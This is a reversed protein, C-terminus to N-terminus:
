MLGWIAKFTLATGTIGSNALQHKSTQQLTLKTGEAYLSAKFVYSSSGDDHASVMRVDRQRNGSDDYYRTGILMTAGDSTRGMFTDYLPLTSITVSGGKSLTGTWLLDHNTLGGTWIGVAGNVITRKFIKGSNSIYTQHTVNGGTTTKNILFGDSAMPRNTANSMYYVGNSKFTNCNYKSRASAGYGEYAQKYWSGWASNGNHYWRYYTPTETNFPYAVQMRGDTPGKGGFFYTVIYCYTGNPTNKNTVILTEGTTNPDIGDTTYSALGNAIRTNFQDSITDSLYVPKRFRSAFNNDFVGDVEAPKGFAIGGGGALFDITFAASGLSVILSSVGDKTDWVSIVIDYEQETSLADAGIVTDVSGKTGSISLITSTFESSGKVAYKIEISLGENEGTIQCCEWDFSLKACTGYASSTGDSSCRNILPNTIKPIWYALEWVAYLITTANVTFTGGASYTATTATSSTSWGKFNYNTRTPTTTSLTLNTGYTKTQAAPAGTGGNANYSITYTNIKWVAYLTAASNASYTSGPAYTATTATSSTSWGLFTYGTRTPSTSSLTLNTGYTKTQAAPAGTGGNANYSVSWQWTVASLTHTGSASIYSPNVGTNIAASFSITKATGSTPMTIRYTKTDGINTWVWEGGGSAVSFTANGGQNQGDCAINYNANGTMNRGGYNFAIDFRVSVDYQHTKQIDGVAKVATVYIRGTGAM